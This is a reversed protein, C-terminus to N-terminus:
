AENSSGSGGARSVAPVCDLAADAQLRAAGHDARVESLAEVFGRAYWHPANVELGAPAGQGPVNWLHRAFDAPDRGRCCPISPGASDLPEFDAALLGDVRGWAYAARLLDLYSPTPRLRPGSV